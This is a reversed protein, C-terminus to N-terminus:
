EAIAPAAPADGAAAAPDGGAAPAEAAPAAARDAEIQRWRAVNRNHEELTQAFVHGGTGDAVFYLDNTQSPNAVAELAAVGPNTIPGPPLGDIQYTNYATQRNLESQLLIHGAPAGAGGYLGYIITPDSQLRMGRNLRNIFVAAVRSREDAIGTEKEVISALIVLEEPTQIPLGPARRAWIEAVVRDHDRRMRDIVSQRTDGRSFQYTEPLLTGEAPVEAIDGTLIENAMLRDVIQQSTLGEPITVAYVLTRGQVMLDMIERMSAQAPILYEGAQLKGQNGYVTVAIRFVWRNSIVGSDELMAAIRTLGAGDGVPIVVDETLTGAQDFQVKAYLGLGGIVLVAAVAITILFNLSVVVPHRAADSRRPPPPVEDPQLIERASKPTMPRRSYTEPRDGADGFESM